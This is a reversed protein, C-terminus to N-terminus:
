SRIRPPAAAPPSVLQGMAQGANVTRGAQLEPSWAVSDKPLLVIVTSGMNFRGMETGRKLFVEEGPIDYRWAHVRRRYPPTIRGAWVTEISGVFIAGVLLVAMPGAPTDFITIVRENRAFLGPVLRTTADNVSFLRGPVYAMAQLRGDLPIHVRHYDRPSLYITAYKGDAFMAAHAANGALLDTLSFHKGKAQFLQGDVIDGAASVVGDAPSVLNQGGEALPRAGPRLARTFFANFHPYAAPDPELALDMEVAYRRIVWRIQWDKVARVRIRTASYMLVSLLHQPLCYLLYVRLRAALGVARGAPGAESPLAPM